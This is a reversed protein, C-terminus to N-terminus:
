NRLTSQWNVLVDLTPRGTAVFRDLLFRGGPLVAYSFGNLQPLVILARREFLPVPPGFSLPSGSTSRRTVAVSTLRSRGIGISSDLYFLERGDISWRPERGGAVSVRSKGDGTPFPRVYVELQGSEDSVYAMSRGDPALQGQTELFPTNAFPFPKQDTESRAAPNPLVWIDAGTKPNQQTYVLYQGDSSWDSPSKM